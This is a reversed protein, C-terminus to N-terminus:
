NGKKFIWRIRRIFAIIPRPLQNRVKGYIKLHAAVRLWAIKDNLDMWFCLMSGWVPFFISSPSPGRGHLSKEVIDHVFVRYTYRGSRVIDHYAQEVIEERVQDTETARLVADLNEFSRKLEIYHRGPVLVGNYQGEILIQCTKTLCAELHRPSLAVLQLSHDRYRFCADRVDEFSAEPHRVMYAKTSERIEGLSDLVSAGGEVGITYKCQCLFRYWEDGLITDESRTSIDAKLGRRRAEEQFVDAIKTKLLGQSGLWPEARWARYGVDIPRTPTSARIKDVRDITDEDLYGTLVRHFHVKSFDVTSYIKQWESEPAVSFVHQIEFENIFDCLLSTNMFEDQPLAIKLAKMSKFDRSKQLIAEFLEPAWRASLFLTHFVILDFPIAKLYGPVERVALNLYFCKFGSYKRFSYLHDRITARLPYQHYSYLVLVSQM